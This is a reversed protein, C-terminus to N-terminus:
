LGTSLAKIDTLDSSLPPPIATLHSCCRLTNIKIRHRIQALTAPDGSLQARKAMRYQESCNYFTGDIDVMKRMSRQGLQHKWFLYFNGTEKM